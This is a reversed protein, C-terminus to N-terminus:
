GQLGKKDPANIYMYFIYCSRDSPCSLEGTLANGMVYFVKVYFTLM